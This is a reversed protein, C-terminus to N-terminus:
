GLCTDISCTKKERLWRRIYRVELMLNKHESKTCIRSPPPISGHKILTHATTKPSYGMLAVIEKSNIYGNAPLRALCDPIASM